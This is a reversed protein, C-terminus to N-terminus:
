NEMHEYLYAKHVCGMAQAHVYIRLKISFRITLYISVISPYISARVSLYALLSIPM